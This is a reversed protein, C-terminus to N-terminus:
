CKLKEEDNQLYIEDKCEENVWEDFEKQMM